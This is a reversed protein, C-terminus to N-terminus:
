QTQKLACSGFVAYRNVARFVRSGCCDAKPKEPICCRCDCLLKSRCTSVEMRSSRVSAADTARAFKRAAVVVISISANPITTLRSSRAFCSRTKDFVRQGETAIFSRRLVPVPHIGHTRRFMSSYSVGLHARRFAGHERRGAAQRVQRAPQIRRLSARYWRHSYNGIAVTRVKSACSLKRIHDRESVFSKTPGIQGLRNGFRGRSAASTSPAM